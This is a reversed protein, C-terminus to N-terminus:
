NKLYIIWYWDKPNGAGVSPTYLFLKVKQNPDAELFDRVKVLGQISFWANDYELSYKLSLSDPCFVVEFGNNPYVINKQFDEEFHDSPFLKEPFTMKGLGMWHISGEFLTQNLEKYILKVSGFDRPPIYQHTITFNETQQSFNFITGGEFRNTTYDVKLMLVQNPASLDIGINMDESHCGLLIGTLFLLLIKTKM